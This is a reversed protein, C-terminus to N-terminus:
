VGNPNFAMGCRTLAKRIFFIQGMGNASLSFHAIDASLQLFYRKEPCTLRGFHSSDAWKNDNIMEVLKLGLTFALKAQNTQSRVFGFTSIFWNCLDSFRLVTRSRQAAAEVVAPKRSTCYKDEFLLCTRDEPLAKFVRSETLWEAFLASKTFEKSSTHYMAGPFNDLLEGMPYLRSPTKIIKMSIDSKTCRDGLAVMTTMGDDGRFVDAYKISTEGCVALMRSTQSSLIFHIEDLNFVDRERIAGSQPYSVLQGIHFAVQRDTLERKSPLVMLKGTQTEM